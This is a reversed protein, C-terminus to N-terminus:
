SQNSLFMVDVQQGPRIPGSDAPVVILCNALGHSGLLHLPEGGHSAGLPDVLFDFTERDRMLQGRIFGRRGPMTEIPAITRAQVVRRGTQRQGRILQILPRVLVEFSVLAASPNAPLLFTPVLEPGLQGFGMISGPHMAVRQVDLEGLEALAERLQDSAAGGVAGAIVVVESRMLQAEITERLKRPEGHVIGLRHVEAGAERAASALAYSNVDFVQGLGPDRDIDVLEQGYSIISVRPKPYVLVKSRGAAALLGVQAAGIVTGQDVLVDGPQIDSGARHVFDGARVPREPLIRRGMPRVWDLPLVANALNPLPAGAEVRVAQRPQLRVPRQSGATVEGVVPLEVFDGQEDVLDVARVAFGDIVAQDFGPLPQSGEVREACRLGLAETIAIRVPEPTVTSATIIALQEEVSRM